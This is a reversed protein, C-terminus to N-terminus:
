SEWRAKMVQKAEHDRFCPQSLVPESGATQQVQYGLSGV